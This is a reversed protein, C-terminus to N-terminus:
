GVVLNVRWRSEGEQRLTPLRPNKIESTNTVHHGICAREDALEDGQGVRVVRITDGDAPVQYMNPLRKEAEARGMYATSVPLAAASIAQLKEQIIACDEQTVDGEYAFTVVCKRSKLRTKFHTLTPFRDHLLRTLLHEATHLATHATHSAMNMGESQIFHYTFVFFREFRLKLALIRFM